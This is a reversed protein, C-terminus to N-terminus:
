IACKAQPVHSCKLLFIVLIHAVMKVLIEPFHAHTM